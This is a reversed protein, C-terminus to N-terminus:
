QFARRQALKLFLFSLACTLLALVVSYAAALHYDPISSTAYVVMNPTYTSSVASSITRFVQPENFLQLTGIISFVGTLVLAPAVHPIKISWAIRFQGAGDVTAAELVETPVAKLASYIILMNYGTYVWNVVNSITFIVAGPGLLDFREVIGPFPTTGPSYLFGWMLAAIVGPVAYPAFLALRFFRKGKLAPSDLLLAFLLALGLQLPVSILFFQGVNVISSWFPGSTFVEAYQSVGGFVDRPAGFTGEREVKLFSQYAAYGIPALYFLSFVVVFPALFGLAARRRSTRIGVGSSKQLRRPRGVATGHPDIETVVQPPVTM